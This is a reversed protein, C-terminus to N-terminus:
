GPRVGTLRARTRKHASARANADPKGWAIILKLPSDTNNRMGHDVDQPVLVAERAQVELTEDGFWM